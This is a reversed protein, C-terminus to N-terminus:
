LCPRAPPRPRFRASLIKKESCCCLCCSPRLTPAISSNSTTQTYTQPWASRTGSGIRRAVSNQLTPSLLPLPLFCLNALCCCLCHLRIVLSLPHLHFSFLPAKRAWQQKRAESKEERESEPGLDLPWIIIIVAPAAGHHDGFEHSM